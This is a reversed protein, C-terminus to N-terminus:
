DLSAVDFWWIMNCSSWDDDSISAPKVPINVTAGPEVYVELDGSDDVLNDYDDYFQEHVTLVFAFGTDNTYPVYCNGEDDYSVMSLADYWDTLSKEIIPYTAM